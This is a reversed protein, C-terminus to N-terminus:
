RSRFTQQVQLYDQWAKFVKFINNNDPNNLSRDSKGKPPLKESNRELESRM